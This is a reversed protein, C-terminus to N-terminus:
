NQARIAVFFAQSVSHSTLFGAAHSFSSTKGRDPGNRAFGQRGEEPRLLDPSKTGM